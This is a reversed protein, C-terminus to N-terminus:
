LGFSEIYHDVLVDTPGCNLENSEGLISERFNMRGELALSLLNPKLKHVISNSSMVVEFVIISQYTSFKKHCYLDVSYKGRYHSLDRVQYFAQESKAELAEIEHYVSMFAWTVFGGLSFSLLFLITSRVM